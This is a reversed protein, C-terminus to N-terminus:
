PLVGRFDFDAATVCRIRGDRAICVHARDNHICRYFGGSDAGRCVAGTGLHEEVDAPSPGTFLMVWVLICILAICAFMLFATVYSLAGDLKSRM